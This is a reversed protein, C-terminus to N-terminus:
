QLLAKMATEIRENCQKAALIPTPMDFDSAVDFQTGKTNTNMEVKCYWGKDLYSLRPKGYRILYTLLEQLDEVIPTANEQPPKRLLSLM